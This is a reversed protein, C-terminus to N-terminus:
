DSDNPMGISLQLSAHMPHAVRDSPLLAAWVVTPVTGWHGRRKLLLPYRGIFLPM